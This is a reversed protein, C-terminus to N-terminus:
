LDHFRQMVVAAEEPHETSFIVELTKLLHTSYYDPDQLPKDISWVPVCRHVAYCSAQIDFVLVILSSDEMPPCHIMLPFDFLGADRLDPVLNADFFEYRIVKLSPNTTALEDEVKKLRHWMEQLPITDNTFTEISRWHGSKLELFDLTSRGMTLKYDFFPYGPVFYGPYFYQFGQERCYVIKQFIVYKGLSHKKYEPDYVSTIGAASKKGLDFFGFAILKDGDYVSVEYTNYVNHNEKGFLLQRISESPQFELTQRYRQYLEEKEETFQAPGIVTRFFSNRKFLRVQTKDDFTNLTIRLWVTSYIQDKFRIFNTTFITQGMRFWGRDLYEDLDLPTIPDPAHAQAFM